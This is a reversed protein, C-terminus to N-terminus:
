VSRKHCIFFSKRQSNGSIFENTVEDLDLDNAMGKHYNLIAVSEATAGHHLAPINEAKLAGFM